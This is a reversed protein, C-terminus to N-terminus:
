FNDKMKKITEEPVGHSNRGTVIRNAVICNYIDISMDFLCKWM